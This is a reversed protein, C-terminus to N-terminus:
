KQLAILINTLKSGLHSYSHLQRWRNAVKQKNQILPSNQKINTILEEMGDAIDQLSTGPLKFVTDSVDDFISLPTVAVPKKTALGYRVAGSASEGTEQYPFLILDAQSLLTLSEKDPLFDTYLEIHNTLNLSNIMKKAQKVIEKSQPAPYLSNIMKLKVKIGRKILISTAEILEILGKHPLFFGYSAITFTKSTTTTKNDWDLIGHPFLTTNKTLSLNKLRNLDNHTHVLIRSCKAFTEILDEIKKDPAHKPNNTSHLTIVVTKNDKIQKELFEKLNKFNFFGYNFQIVITDLNLKQITKSLEKLNDDEGERWCRHVNSNDPSIQNNTHSALITVPQYMNNILHESYTAIGCKTNWSTIWGIKPPKKQTNKTLDKTTNLLNTAIDKWKFNQLLKEKAKKVKKLRQEKPLKYLKQMLLTLHEKSPEAWVSDFLEFHTKSPSFNYDILWATDDNCFDLQGGWGTTIVALNSLMAEALPLGFGEARSPAVLVDCQNYLSKLEESTLDDEIIVVKPYEKNQKKAEELWQHVKNHPNQFTKIVLTVDDKKSFAKGYAKLLVDVGKRPFCSSVHLFSFNSSDQLKYSEDPIIKEWHDVGCGSTSLPVIVGNDTLIKQIHTSLCTIGQLNQNFEEVWESPFGSEEWAYHHLLNLRSKMDSVRPPYLNRSTIQTYKYSPNLSKQYLKNLKPNKNLFEQSPTFDGLGETSHLVVDCGLEELALATERNLLALSYSSDFPGEVRWTLPKSLPQKRLTNEITQENKAVTNSITYLEEKTTKYHNCINAIQKIQQNYNQKYTDFEEEWTTPKSNQIITTEFYKIAKKASNDWSFRQLQEKYHQLLKERLTKNTLVQKIKNSISNIDFPDFLADKNGIVEPISTTNSGIVLAGCSMAELLPLGFGEHISPFVFLNSLTYFSVLEDDTVYGTLILDDKKLRKSKAFNLLRNKDAEEVKSIIVLQYDDKISKPLTSYAEIFNEFNKRVDFGGPAYIITKKTINFRKFLATKEDKSIDKPKFSEDVASSINTVKSKNINLQEIVEDCSSKSIGLILDAKKFNKIKKLYFNKYSNDLLYKDQHIYPILDYGIVAVKTKKNYRKISTVADDVYGEFLSTILLIDPTLSKIFSERLIESIERRQDNQKESEKLPAVGQWIKINQPPLLNKFEQKIDDITNPFLNSLLIIVEHNASNKVIAKSIALSYRGIGRFRSASQAGQLDIVIKM